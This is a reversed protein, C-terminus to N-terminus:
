AIVIFDEEEDDYWPAHSKFYLKIGMHPKAKNKKHVERAWDGGEDYHSYVAVNADPNCKELEKILEGVKM